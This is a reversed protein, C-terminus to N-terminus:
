RRWKVGENQSKICILDNIFQFKFEKYDKRHLVICVRKSGKYQEIKELLKKDSLDGFDALYNAKYDLPTPTNKLAELKVGSDTFNLMPEEQWQIIMEGKKFERTKASLSVSCALLSLLLGKCTQRLM